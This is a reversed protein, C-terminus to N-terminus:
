IGFLSKLLEKEFDFGEVEFSYQPFYWEFLSTGRVSESELLNMDKNYKSVKQLFNYELRDLAKRLEDSSELAKNIINRLEGVEILKEKKLKLLVDELLEVLFYLNNYSEGVIVGQSKDALFSSLYGTYTKLVHVEEKLKYVTTILIVLEESPIDIKKKNVSKIHVSLIHLCNISQMLIAYSLKSFSTVHELLENKENMKEIYEQNKINLKKTYLDMEKKYRESKVKWDEDEKRTKKSWYITWGISGLSLVTACVSIITNWEIM